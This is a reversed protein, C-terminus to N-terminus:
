FPFLRLMQFPDFNLEQVYELFTFPVQEAIDVCVQYSVGASQCQNVFHFPIQASLARCHNWTTFFSPESALNYVCRVTFVHPIFFTWVQDCVYNTVGLLLVILPVAYWMCLILFAFLTVHIIRDLAINVRDQLRWM